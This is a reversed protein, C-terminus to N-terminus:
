NLGPINIYIRLGGDEGPHPAVVPLRRGGKMVRSEQLEQIAKSVFEQPNPGGQRAGEQPFHAEFCAEVHHGLAERTVKALDAARWPPAGSGQRLLAGPM